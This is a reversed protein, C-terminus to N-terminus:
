EGAARGRPRPLIRRRRPRRKAARTPRASRETRHRPERSAGGGSASATHQRAASVPAMAAATPAVRTMGPMMRGREGMAMFLNAEPAHFLEGVACAMQRAFDRQKEFSEYLYGHVADSKWRGYRKV